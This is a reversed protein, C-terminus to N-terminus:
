HRNGWRELVKDRFPDTRPMPYGHYMGQEPSELQAEVPCGDTTVAWINQPFKGRKQESILGRRAGERLLGQATRRRHVSADDCLAKDPRPQAPPILDFDGPNRKHEPNGGYKVQRALRRLEDADSDEQIRRKPNFTRRRQM